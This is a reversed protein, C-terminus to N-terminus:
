LERDRQEARLTEHARANDRFVVLAQAIDTIEDHGSADIATDLSGQAISSTSAALLRMRRALRRDGYLFAVLLVGIAGGCAMIALLIQNWEVEALTTAIQETITVRAEEVMGQAERVMDEALMKNNFLLDDQTQLHFLADDQLVFLGDADRGHALFRELAQHLSEREPVSPLLEYSRLLRDQISLFNKRLVDLLTRDRTTKVQGYLSNLFDAAMQMELLSQLFSINLISSRLVKGRLVSIEHEQEFLAKTSGIFQEKAAKIWPVLVKLLADHDAQMAEARKHYQEAVQISTTLSTDMEDLNVFIFERLDGINTIKERGETKAIGTITEQLTHDYEKLKILGAARANEDRAAAFGITGTVM